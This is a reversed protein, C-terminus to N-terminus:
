SLLLAVLGGGAIVPLRACLRVLYTAKWTPQKITMARLTRSTGTVIKHCPAHCLPRVDTLRERGLRAYHLHHLDRRTSKRCCVLCRKRPWWTRWYQQRKEAWTDYGLNMGQQIYAVYENSIDKEFHM